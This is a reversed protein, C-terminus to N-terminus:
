VTAEHAPMPLDLGAERLATRYVELLSEWIYEPRFYTLVRTRAAEVHRRRLDEDELYRAVAGALAAADAVPVLTGTVGDVVADVSGSARAAVIPVEMAAAELLVNPFGERHSPFALVDFLPYYPAADEVMGALHVRPDAELQRRMDAPVADRSEFPGVLLLHLDPFRARLPQWAQALEVIGKDRVLRGIFGLVRAGPPLGLRRRLAATSDSAYHSPDFRGTADVGNSSGHALMQVKEAPCLGERILAERNSVSNCLVHTALRCSLWETTRLLRRQSGSATVYPLGRVHYIRVPVRALWAAMMGVLGGKPTHGHVIHPRRRLLHRYLRRVLGADEHPAIRRSMPLALVGAGEGAVRDLEPGPASVFEVDFGHAQMFRMQGQFFRLTMSVTLVHTLRVREGATQVAYPTSIDRREARM